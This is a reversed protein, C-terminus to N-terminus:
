DEIVAVAVKCTATNAKAYITAGPNLRFLMVEGAELRIGYVGTSFGIEVYNAADLNRAICWGNTSIDGLSITEEVTGIDVSGPNGGGATAQDFTLAGPDFTYYFNGNDVRLSARITIEDAM